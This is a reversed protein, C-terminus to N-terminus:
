FRRLVCASAMLCAIVRFARVMPMTTQSRFSSSVAFAAPLISSILTM